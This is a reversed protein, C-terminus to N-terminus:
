RDPAFQKRFFGDPHWRPAAPDAAVTRVIESFVRTFAGASPWDIPQALDDSPKHYRNKLFADEPSGLLTGLYLAPVGERIFPYQDSRVFLTEDPLPDPHLKFGQRVAAADLVRGLTTHEAGWGVVDRTPRLFLPMDVNLNAAFRRIGVPPRRALQYAGLLGKEEATLAAFLIPRRPAPGRAFLEALTLLISSGMANDMVGNYIADGDIAPGIGIHDLHATVVLPEGALAPDTGPLLAVVNASSAKRVTAAAGLTFTGPWAFGVRERAEAQAVTTDFNKGLTSFLKQASGHSVGANARLSPFGLYIKGDADILRMAPFRSSNIRFAWPYRAHDRPTTLSIIGVAGTAALVEAKTAAYHARPESPLWPPSGSLVIAFRGKLDVGALDDHNFDPARIGYGLFVAPATLEVETEGPAPSVLVDAPAELVLADAPAQPQFRFRGRDLAHTSEIFEARQLFSGADGAPRLGLRQFHAAAYLAAVQHGRQGTGRGELLDDGLFVVHARVMRALTEDESKSTIPTAPATPAAACALGPVTGLLLRALRLFNM